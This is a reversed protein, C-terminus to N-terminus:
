GNALIAKAEAIRADLQDRQHTLKLIVTSLNDRTGTLLMLLGQVAYCPENEIQNTEIEDAVATM